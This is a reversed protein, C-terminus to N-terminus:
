ELEEKHSDDYKKIIEIFMIDRNDETTCVFKIDPSQPVLSFSELFSNLKCVKYTILSITLDPPSPPNIDINQPNGKEEEEEKTKNDCSKNPQEPCIMIVNISSHICYSCHPDEM